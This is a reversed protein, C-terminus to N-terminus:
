RIENNRPLPHMVIMRKKAKTMLQPTVQFLGYSKKFEEESEFREKQIRTMYLVDTDDLASELDDYNVQHIGKKEIFEIVEVPMKLNAPAVYRLEKVDYLTLLRALSHVTRGNKLDGVM